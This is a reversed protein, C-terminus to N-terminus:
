FEQSTKGRESSRTQSNSKKQPPPVLTCLYGIKCLGCLQEAQAASSGHGRRSLGVRKQKEQPNLWCCGIHSVRWGKLGKREGLRALRSTTYWMCYVPACIRKGTTCSCTQSGCSTRRCASTRSAATSRSTGSWTWTWGTRHKRLPLLPSFIINSRQLRTESWTNQQRTLTVPHQQAVTTTLPFLPPMCMLLTFLKGIDLLRRALLDKGFFIHRYFFSKCM